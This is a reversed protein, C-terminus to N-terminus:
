NNSPPTPTLKYALIADVDDLVAKAAKNHAYLDAGMGVSQSGQGPFLYALKM